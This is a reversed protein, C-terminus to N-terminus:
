EQIHAKEQSHRDREVAILGEDRYILSTTVTAYETPFEITQVKTEVTLDAVSGVISTSGPTPRMATYRLSGGADQRINAPNVAQPLDVPKLMVVAIEGDSDVVVAFFRGGVYRIEVRYKGEAFDANFSSPRAKVWYLDQRINAPDSARLAVGEERLTESPQPLDTPEPAMGAIEGDSDVAVAFFRGDIYRTEVRFRGDAFSISDAFAVGSSPLASDALPAAPVGTFLFAVAFATPSILLKLHKM